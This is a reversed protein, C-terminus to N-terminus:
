KARTFWETMTSEKGEGTIVVHTEMKLRDGDLSLSVTTLRKDTQKRTVVLRSGQWSSGSFDGGAGSGGTRGRPETIRYIITPYYQGHIALLPDLIDDPVHKTVSLRTPRQEILLRGNGPVWGLGNDFFVSSKPPESPVWFGAFSPRQDQGAGVTPLTVARKYITVQKTRGESSEVILRGQQDLSWVRTTRRVSGDAATATEEIVLRDGDWKARATVTGAPGANRSESGDLRYSSEAGDSRRATIGTATQTIVQTAATRQQTLGARASQLNQENQLGKSFLSETRALQREAAELAPTVEIWTGSFDPATRAALTTLCTLCTLAVVTAGFRPARSVATRAM